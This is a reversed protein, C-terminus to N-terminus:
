SKLSYHLLWHNGYKDTLGGFLAGWFTIELPHTKQGDKALKEYCENIEKESSCHLMLSIANGRILGNESVMDSAMIVMEGNSLTAHLISNKM